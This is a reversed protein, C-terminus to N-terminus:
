PQWRKEMANLILTSSIAATPLMVILTYKYNYWLVITGIIATLWLIFVVCLILARSRTLEPPPLLKFTLGGIRVTNSRPNGFIDELKPWRKVIARIILATLPVALLTTWAPVGTLFMLYFLWLIMALFVIAGFLGFANKSVIVQM